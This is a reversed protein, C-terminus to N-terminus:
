GLARALLDSIVQRADFSREAIARAAQCHRQYNEQLEEVARVAQSPTNFTLLGEGVDLNQSFGTDEIIVPRGSALYAASRESFWGSRSIVYGQKAVSFEGRSGTIFRQYAWPTQLLDLPDHLMWGEKLLEERPPSGGGLTLEFACGTLEPLQVYPMFSASKMGYQVGNWERTAYSDWQMVTTLAGSQPAPSPTWCDLVVPQRTPQWDFGDQPIACGERGINEGFSFFRNHAEARQRAQPDTLHRIQTFAPDTDVLVRRPVEALWERLPNMGSLNLVLDARRCFGTAQDAFPGLWRRAPADYWAWRDAIGASSFARFLGKVYALGFRADTGIADRAPDYCCPEDDSDELFVVEHGLRALGLVYQLHHWVLGGIPGRVLYGLVVIRLGSAAEPM